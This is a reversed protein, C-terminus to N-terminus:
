VETLYMIKPAVSPLFLPPIPLSFSTISIHGFGLYNHAFANAVLADQDQVFYQDLFCIMMQRSYSNALIEARARLTM